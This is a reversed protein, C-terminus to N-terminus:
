FFNKNLSQKVLTEKYMITMKSLYISTFQRTRLHYALLVQMVEFCLVNVDIALLSKKFMNFEHTVDYKDNIIVYEITIDSTHHESAHHESAHHESAHHESTHDDHQLKPFAVEGKVSGNQVYAIINLCNGVYVHKGAQSHAQSVDSGLTQSLIQHYFSHYKFMKLFALFMVWYLKDKNCVVQFGLKEDLYGHYITYGEFTWLKLRYYSTSISQCFNLYLWYINLLSYIGKHMM